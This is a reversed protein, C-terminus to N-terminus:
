RDLILGGLKGRLEREREVNLWVERWPIGRFIGKTM